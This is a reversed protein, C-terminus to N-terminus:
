RNGVYAVRCIVGNSDESVLLSGDIDSALGALRGVQHDNDHLFGTSFDEFLRRAVSM